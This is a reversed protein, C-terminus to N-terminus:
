SLVPGEAGPVGCRANENLMGEHADEAHIGAPDRCTEADDVELPPTERQDLLPADRGWAAGLQGVAEAADVLLQQVDDLPRRRGGHGDLRRERPLLDLAQDLERM